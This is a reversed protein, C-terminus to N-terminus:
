VAVRMVKEFVLTSQIPHMGANMYLRDAGTLSTSDVSLSVRSKGRRYFEGFTHCLLARAIGRRRWPRRVAVYRVHGVRPEGPREWRCIIYGIIRGTADDIALFWLTSDFNAEREVFYYRFEEDTLSSHGWEDSQADEWAEHVADVEAPDFTRVSVGEPWVPAPPPEHMDIQMRHWVRSRSFGAQLIRQQLPLNTAWARAELTVREGSPARPLTLAARQEAWNLLFEEIGRNDFGPLVGFECESVTFPEYETLDAYAVIQGDPDLVVVNNTELNSDAGEWFMSLREVTTDGTGIDHMSRANEVIVVAEVDEM